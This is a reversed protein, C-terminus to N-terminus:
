FIQSCKHGQASTISPFFTDSYVEDNLRKERLFPFRSKYHKRPVERNDEEPILCFQTTAELTREIVEDPVFGLRKRWEELTVVSYNKEKYTRAPRAERRM